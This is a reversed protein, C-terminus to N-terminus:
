FTEHDRKIEWRRRVIDFFESATTAIGEWHIWAAENRELVVAGRELHMAETTGSANMPFFVTVDPTIVM